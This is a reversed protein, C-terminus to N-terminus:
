AVMGGKMGSLQREPQRHLLPDLNGRLQGDHQAWLRRSGPRPLPADVAGPQGGPLRGGADVLSLQGGAPMRFALDYRQGIIPLLEPGLDTPGHLDHGDLALVRYPAGLLTLLEPFGTAAPGRLSRRYVTLSQSQGM